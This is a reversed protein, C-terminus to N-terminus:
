LDSKLSYIEKTLSERQANLADKETQSSTRLSEYEEKLKQANAEMSAAKQNQSEATLLRASIEEIKKQSEERSALAADREQRAVEIQTKLGQVEQGSSQAAAVEAELDKVRRALQDRKKTIDKLQAQQLRMNDEFVISKKANLDSQASKSSSIEDELAQKQTQLASVEARAKELDSRLTQIQSELTGQRERLEATTQSGSQKLAANESQLAKLQAQSEGAATKANNVESQLSAARSKLEQVEKILTEKESSLNQIRQLDQPDRVPPALAAPAPTPAARLKAIETELSKVRELAKDKEQLLIQRDSKAEELERQVLQSQSTSNQTRLSKLQTSLDEITRKADALDADRRAIEDTAIQGGPQGKLKDIEQYAEDRERTLTRVHEKWIGLLEKTRAIEASMTEPDQKEFGVTAAKNESVIGMDKAGAQSPAPGLLTSAFFFLTVIASKKM